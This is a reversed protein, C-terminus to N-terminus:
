NSFYSKLDIEEWGSYERVKFWIKLESPRVVVSYITKILGSEPFTAGDLPLTQDIIMMMKEPTIDGRYQEGLRM